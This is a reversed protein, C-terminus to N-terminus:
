DVEGLASQLEEKTVGLMLEIKQELTPDPMKEWPSGSGIDNFNYVTNSEKWALYEPDTNPIEYSEFGGTYYENPTDTIAIITDQRPSIFYNTIAM